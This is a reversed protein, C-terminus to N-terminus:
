SKIQSAGLLKELHNRPLSFVTFLTSCKPRHAVPFGYREVLTIKYKGNSAAIAASAGASGSGIVLIDTRLSKSIVTSFNM